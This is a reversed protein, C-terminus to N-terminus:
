KKKFTVRNEELDSFGYDRLTFTSNDIKKLYRRHRYVLVSDDFFLLVQESSDYAYFYPKAEGDFSLDSYSVSITAKGLLRYENKIDVYEGYTTTEYKQSNSFPIFTIVETSYLHNYNYKEGVWMGSLFSNLEAEQGTFSLETEKKSDSCSSSIVIILGCLFILIHRM